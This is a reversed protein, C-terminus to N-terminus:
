INVKKLYLSKNMKLIRIKQLFNTSLINNYLLLIYKIKTMKTYKNVKKLYLSKNMKLFKIKQLFNTSLINNYLLLIYKIKTM